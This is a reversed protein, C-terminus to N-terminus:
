LNVDRIEKFFQNDWVKSCITCRLSPCPTNEYVIHDQPHACVNGETLMLNLREVQQPIGSEEIKQSARKQLFELKKQTTNRQNVIRMTDKIEDPDQGAIQQIRKQVDEESWELVRLLFKEGAAQPMPPPSIIEDHYLGFGSFTPKSKESM